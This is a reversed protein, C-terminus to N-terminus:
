DVKLILTTKPPISLYYEDGHTDMIGKTKPNTFKTKNYLADRFRALQLHRMEEMQNSVIMFTENGLVRFFVYTGNDGSYNITKGSQLAPSSKRLNVLYKVHDFAEKTLGKRQEANFLNLSDSAWGGPFDKRVLANSPDTTGDMLIETGYYICPIGRMTMLLNIAMEWKSYDGGLTTYIRSTNHNDLFTVLLEPNQYLYDDSLTQYIKNLGNAASYATNLGNSIAECMQFDTVSPLTNKSLTSINNIVFFAQSPSNSSKIAGFIGLNPFNQLLLKNLANMYDQDVYAYSEIRYGALDAYEAWWLYLQNLYIAMHENTQNIDPLDRGFWGNINVRQESSPAYLDSQPHQIRNVSTFTDWSNFWGTDFYSFMWHQSGFHNPIIDMVMKMERAKIKDILELYKANGGFRPDVEFHNTMAYGSYSERPQDNTQVPNLLLTNVGLDQLYDLNNIIGQIDGGHRGILSARNRLDPNRIKGANDNAPDGNAFRDPLIHYMLDKNNFGPTRSSRRVKLEFKLSFDREGRIRQWISAVKSRFVLFGPKANPNIKVKFYAVHRNASPFKGIFEVGEYDEMEVDASSIQDANVIIELEPNSFGIYWHAPALNWVKSPIAYTQQAYLWFCFSLLCKAVKM